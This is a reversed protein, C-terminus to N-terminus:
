RPQLFVRKERSRYRTLFQPSSTPTMESLLRLQLEPRDIIERSETGVNRIWSAGAERHQSGPLLPEVAHEGETANAAHLSGPAQQASPQRVRTRRDRHAPRLAQSRPQQRDRAEDARHLAATLEPEERLVGGPANSNKTSLAPM